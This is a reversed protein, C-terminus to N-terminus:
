ADSIVPFFLLDETLANHLLFVCNGGYFHPAMVQVVPTSCHISLDKDSQIKGWVDWACAVRETRHREDNTNVSVSVSVDVAWTGM